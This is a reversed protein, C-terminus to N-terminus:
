EASGWGYNAESIDRRRPGGDGRKLRPYRWQIEHPFNAAPFKCAKAAGWQEKTYWSHQPSQRGECHFKIQSCGSRVASQTSSTHM